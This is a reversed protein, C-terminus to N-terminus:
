ERSDRILNPSAFGLSLAIKFMSEYFGAQPHWSFRTKWPRV